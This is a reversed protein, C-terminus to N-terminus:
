ESLQGALGGVPATHEHLLRRRRRVTHGTPTSMTPVATPASTTPSATPTSTTPSASPSLTTPSATPTRTSTPSYSPMPECFDAKCGMWSLSVGQLSISSNLYVYSWQDFPLSSWAVEREIGDVWLNTWHESRSSSSFYPQPSTESASRGDLLYLPGAAEAPQYADMWLWLSVGLVVVRSSALELADSEGDFQLVWNCGIGDDGALAVNRLMERM